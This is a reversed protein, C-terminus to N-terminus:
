SVPKKVSVDFLEKNIPSELRDNGLLTLIIDMNEETVVFKGDEISLGWETEAITKLSSMFEPNKYYGRNQITCVKRLYRYHDGIKNKLLEVNDLIELERIDEIFEDRKAIMGERFNLIVEFNKKDFIFLKEKFYIFDVKKRMRLVPSEEINYTTESFIINLWSNHLKFNEPAKSIAYLIPTHLLNPIISIVFAFVNKIDKNELIENDSFKNLERLIAPFDTENTEAELLNDDQDETVYSYPRVGGAGNISNVIIEKINRNLATSTNVNLISYEAKRAKLTRKIVHLNAHAARLNLNKLEEFITLEPM